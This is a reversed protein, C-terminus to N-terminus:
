CGLNYTDSDMLLAKREQYEAWSKNLIDRAVAVIEDTNGTYGAKSVFKRMWNGSKFYFNFEVWHDSIQGQIKTTGLGFEFKNDVIKM